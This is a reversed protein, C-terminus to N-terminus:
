SRSGYLIKGDKAIKRYKEAAEAFTKVGEINPTVRIGAWGTVKNLKDHITNLEMYSAFLDALKAKFEDTRSFISNLGKAMDALAPVLENGITVSLESFNARLRTIQNAYSDGTRIADGQADTTGEQILQFRLMVKELDTLEKYSKNWGKNLAAQKIASESIIIGFKRVTEHNGVLASTFDRIVEADAKNNFSAVDVALTTLAKALEYAEDRAIGLPVFTDQLGAMWNEVDQTARGVDDGFQIAWNRAQINLDRFVVDFKSGIEEADSAARVVAEFGRKLAYIGGGVGAMVLMSRGLRMVTQRTTNLQRNFAATEGAAKNRATFEAVIRRVDEAM